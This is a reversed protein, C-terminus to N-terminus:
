WVIPWSFICLVMKGPLLWYHWFFVCNELVGCGCLDAVFDSALMAVIGGVTVLLRFFKEPVFCGAWVRFFMVM